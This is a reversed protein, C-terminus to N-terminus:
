RYEHGILGKFKRKPDYKRRLDVLKNHHDGYTELPDHFDEMGQPSVTAKLGEELIKQPAAIALRRALELEEIPADARAGSSILLTHKIEAPRPWACDQASGQVYPCVTFCELLLVSCSPISGGYQQLSDSWTAARMITDYSLHPISMTAWSNSMKGRLGLVNRQMSMVGLAGTERTNEIAGPIQLAFEFQKRAHALGHADYVQLVLPADSPPGKVDDDAHMSDLVEDRLLMLFMTVRPDTNKAAFDAMGRAIIPLGTRPIIINGSYIKQPYPHVRLILKTVYGFGCGGGRMAFLLGEEESAMVVRGDYLVVEADLFNLPDSICGFECSMWSFGGLQVCGAVGIHPTRAAVITHTADVKELKEVVEIWNYGAGITVEKTEANYAFDRFHTTSILVDRASAKRLGQGRINFDLDTAYLFRVIRVLSETSRPTLVVAPHDDDSATFPAALSSYSPSDRFVVEDPSIQALLPALTSQTNNSAM